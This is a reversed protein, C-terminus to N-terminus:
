PLTRAASYIQSAKDPTNCPGRLAILNMRSAPDIRRVCGISLPHLENGYAVGQDFESYTYVCIPESIENKVSAVYVVDIM